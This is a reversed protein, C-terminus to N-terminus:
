LHELRRLVLLMRCCYQGRINCMMSIGAAEVCTVDLVVEGREYCKDIENRCLLSCKKGLDGWKEHFKRSVSMLIMFKERHTILFPKLSPTSSMQVSISEVVDWLQVFVCFYVFGADFHFIRRSRHIRFEQWYLQITNCITRHVNHFDYNNM